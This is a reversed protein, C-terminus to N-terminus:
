LGFITSSHDVFNRSALSKPHTIGHKYSTPRGRNMQKEKEKYSSQISDICIDRNSVYDCLGTEGAGLRAAETLRTPTVRGAPVRMGGASSNRHRLRLIVVGVCLAEPM